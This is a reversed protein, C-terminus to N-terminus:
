TVARMSCQQVNGASCAASCQVNCNNVSPRGVSAAATCFARGAYVYHERDSLLLGLASSWSPQTSAQDQTIDHVCLVAHCGHLYNAAM